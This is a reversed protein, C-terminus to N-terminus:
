ESFPFASRVSPLSIIEDVISDDSKGFMGVGIDLVESDSDYQALRNYQMPNVNRYVEIYLKGTDVNVYNGTEDKVSDTFIRMMPKIFGSRKKRGQKSHWIVTTTIKYEVTGDSSDEDSVMDIQYESLSRMKNVLKDVINKLKTQEQTAKYASDDQERLNKTHFRRMNEALINKLKDSM